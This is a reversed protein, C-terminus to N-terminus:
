LAASDQVTDDTRSGARSVIDYYYVQKGTIECPKIEIREIAKWQLLLDKIIQTLRSPYIGLGEAIMTTSSAGNDRIFEYVEVKRTHLKKPDKLLEQFAKKSTIQVDQDERTQSSQLSKKM